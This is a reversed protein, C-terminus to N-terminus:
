RCNRSWFAHGPYYDGYMSTSVSCHCGKTFVRIDIHSALDSYRDIYGIMTPRRCNDRILIDPKNEICWAAIGLRKCVEEIGAQDSLPILTESMDLLVTDDTVLDENTYQFIIEGSIDVIQQKRHEVCENLVQKFGDLIVMPTRSSLQSYFGILDIKVDSPIIIKQDLKVLDGIIQTM